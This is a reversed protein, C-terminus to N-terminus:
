RNNLLSCPQRSAIQNLTSIFTFRAKNFMSGMGTSSPPWINSAIISPMRRLGSEWKLRLQRVIEGKPLGYITVHGNTEGLALKQGNPSLDIPGVHDLHQVFPSLLQKFRDFM